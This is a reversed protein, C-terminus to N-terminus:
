ANNYEVIRKMVEEYKMDLDMPECDMLKILSKDPYSMNPEVYTIHALTVWIVKGFARTLKIM